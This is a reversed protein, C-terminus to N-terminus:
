KTRERLTKLLADPSERNLIQRFQSRYNRIMSVGEIIVDYVEWRGDKFIMRYYIPIKKSSTVVESQVEARTESLMSEKTFNVKEDSYELIRGMYINALFKSFLEVFEKQQDANLRKWDRGLTRRSLEYYNFINDAIAWIKKEKEEKAADGKLAPDSLVNLLANVEKQISDMPAGAFAPFPCLLLLTLGMALVFTGKKM